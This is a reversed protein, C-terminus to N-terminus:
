KLYKAADNGTLRVGDKYVVVFADKFGLPVLKKRYNNAETFTAYPGSLYRIIDGLKETHLKAVKSFKGSSTNVPVKTAFVQIKYTIGNVITITPKVENPPQEKPPTNQTPTNPPDLVPTTPKPDTKVTSSQKEIEVKYDKFGSFIANAIKNQGDESVLFSEETNNTLFGTEVLVAPMTTRYLVLFGAQKVGRNYRGIEKFHKQIHDAIQTSQEIYANQNLSLVIHTEPADPDFGDYQNKYDKEMTVVQNERKSVDLNADTKHLGLLYTEAGYASTNPNANCHISIFLDANNRNAIAAREHLEIFVDTKRTYIVKIDPYNKTILAGLKLAIDLTVIKEKSNHQGSCGNDHGGHGADIVITKIKFNNTTTQSKINLFPILMLVLLFGINIGSKM